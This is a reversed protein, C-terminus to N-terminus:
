WRGKPFAPGEFLDTLLQNVNLVMRNSNASELVILIIINVKSGGSFDKNEEYGRLGKGYVFAERQM